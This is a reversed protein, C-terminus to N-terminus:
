RRRRRRPRYFARSGPRPHRYPERDIGGQYKIHHSRVDVDEDLDDRGAHWGWAAFALYIVVALLWAAPNSIIDTPM